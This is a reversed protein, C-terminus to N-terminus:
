AVIQRTSVPAAVSGAAGPAGCSVNLDACQKIHTLVADGGGTLAATATTTEVTGSSNSGKSRLGRTALSAAASWGCFGRAGGRPQDGLQKRLQERDRRKQPRHSQAMPKHAPIRNLWM